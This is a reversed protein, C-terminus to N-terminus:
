ALLEEAAEAVDDLYSNCLGYVAEEQHPHVHLVVQDQSVGDVQALFFEDLLYDKAQEEVEIATIIERQRQRQRQRQVHEFGSPERQSSDEFAQEHTHKQENKAGPPRGRPTAM